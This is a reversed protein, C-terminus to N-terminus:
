FFFNMLAGETHLTERWALIALIIIIFEWFVEKGNLNLAQQIDREWPVYM